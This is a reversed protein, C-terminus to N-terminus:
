HYSMTFGKPQKVGAIMEYGFEAIMSSKINVFYEEVGGFFSYETQFLSPKTPTTGDGAAEFSDIMSVYKLIEAKSVFDCTYELMLSKNDKKWTPPTILYYKETANPDEAAYEGEKEYVVYENLTFNIISPYYFKASIKNDGMHSISLTFDSISTKPSDLVNSGATPTDRLIYLEQAM